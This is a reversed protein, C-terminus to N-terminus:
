RKNEQFQSSVLTQAQLVCAQPSPRFKSGMFIAAAEMPDVKRLDVKQAVLPLETCGLIVCDNGPYRRVIEAFKNQNDDDAYGAKVGKQGYIVDMTAEIDEERPITLTIGM